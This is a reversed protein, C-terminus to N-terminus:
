LVLSKTTKVLIFQNHLQQIYCHEKLLSFTFTISNQNSYHALIYQKDFFCKFLFINSFLIEIQM